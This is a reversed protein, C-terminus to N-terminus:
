NWTRTEERKAAAAVGKLQLLARQLRTLDEEYTERDLRKEYPYGGSRLAQEKIAPPLEPDDIDFQNVWNKERSM